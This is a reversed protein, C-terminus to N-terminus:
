RDLLHGWFGALRTLDALGAARDADAHSILATILLRVDVEGRLRAALKRSEAAPIVNDDRGHLLFVPVVPHPSLSPSLAPADVYPEIHPLLRPGLRKVDRDNVYTLLTASPEPLALAVERLAAFERRAQPKDSRDLYSAWLFRRVADRLPAVQAPPVLRDALNLLAVAVGYDHPPLRENGKCFYELVRRLDDHGGFSLVYLLRGRLSPRGAAVVALGGSFSVGMLGIRGNTPIGSENALWAAAAEIRNTLAPTIEFRSLEPIDPTVVTVNAEALTRALAALRPEDIGSPHLGSVLLITHRSSGSAPAYVRARMSMGGARARVIRQTVDVASLDALRRAPGQLGGARIVLTAGDIYPQAAIWVILVAVFAVGALLWRRM